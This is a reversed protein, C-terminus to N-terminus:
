LVGAKEDHDVALSSDERKLSAISNKRYRITAMSHFFPPTKMVRNLWRATCRKKWYDQKCLLLHQLRRKIINKFSWESIHLVRQEEFGDLLLILENCNDILVNLSSMSISWKKLGKCLLKLKTSICKASDGPCNIDWITKVVDLFWPLRIWHNEFRFVKPKPISTGISVVCPVHDSVPKALPKVVTNPFKLTWAVSTFFWDHQVLLPDSQM